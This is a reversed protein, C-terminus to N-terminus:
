RVVEGGRDQVWAELEGLAQHPVLVEVRACDARRAEAEALARLRYVVRAVAQRLVGHRDAAQQISPCRGALYDRAAALTTASRASRGLRTGAVLRDVQVPTLRNPGRSM